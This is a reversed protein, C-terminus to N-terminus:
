EAAVPTEPAAEKLAMAITLMAFAEARTIQAGPKFTNDEYGNVIGLEVAKAVFPKSWELMNVDAFALEKDSEGFGYARVIVAAFQERTIAAKPAFTGDPNGSFAGAKVVADVYPKAWDSVDSSDTVNSADGEVALGQAVAVIKAVEERTINDSPRINGSADGSVIKKEM